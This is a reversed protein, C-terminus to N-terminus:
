EADEVDSSYNVPHEDELSSSKTCDNERAYDTKNM